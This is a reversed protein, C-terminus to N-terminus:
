TTCNFKKTEQPVFDNVFRLLKEFGIASDEVRDGSFSVNFSIYSKPSACTAQVLARDSGIVARGPFSVPREVAYKYREDYEKWDGPDPAHDWRAIVVFLVQKGGATLTCGAGGMSAYADYTQRVPGRDPILPSLATKSAPVKCFEEPVTARPNSGSCATATTLAAACLLLATRRPGATM